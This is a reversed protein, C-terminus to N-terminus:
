NNQIVISGGRGGIQQAPQVPQVVVQQRAMGIQQRNALDILSRLRAEKM